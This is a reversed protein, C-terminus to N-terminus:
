RQSVKGIEKDVDNEEDDISYFTESEEVDNFNDIQSLYEEEFMISNINFNSYNDLAMTLNTCIYDMEGLFEDSLQISPYGMKARGHVLKGEVTIILRDASKDM